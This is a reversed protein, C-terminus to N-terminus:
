NINSAINNALWNSFDNQIIKYVSDTGQQCLKESPLDALSFTILFGIVMEPLMISYNALITHMNVPDGM